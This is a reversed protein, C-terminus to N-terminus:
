DFIKIGWEPSVFRKIGLSKHLNSIAKGDEDSLEVIKLNAAIREPTVSKPLPVVKRWVSWSICIAAPTTNYKAAIEQLQATQLLPAGASGLPSYAEVLIGKSQCFDVLEQQPLFPHLEIQLAAPVVNAKDLIVQVKDLSFNSIGIAKTLKTELLKEMSLYTDLYSWKSPDILDRSGDERTPFLADNGDGNMTVPWHMLYLDVYEVGLKKLSERLAQEARQHDTSWLKTTIFLENRSIGSDRIAKGVIEENGYVAATDIHKYGAKLAAIVANYAEQETSRWTGFGIAPIEAGTNLKFNPITSMESEKRKIYSHNQLQLLEITSTQHFVFSFTRCLVTPPFTMNDQRYCGGSVTM